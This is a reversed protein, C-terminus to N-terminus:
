IYKDLENRVEKDTVEPLTDLNEKTFGFSFFGNLLEM